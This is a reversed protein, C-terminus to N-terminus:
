PAACARWSNMVTLDSSVGSVAVNMNSDGFWSLIESKSSLSISMSLSCRPMGSVSYLATTFIGDASNWRM